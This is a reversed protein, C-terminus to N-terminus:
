AWIVDSPNYHSAAIWCLQNLCGIRVAHYVEAKSLILFREKRELFDECIQIYRFTAFLWLNNYINKEQSKMEWGSPNEKLEPVLFPGHCVFSLSLPGAHGPYAWPPHLLKPGPFAGDPTPLQAHFLWSSCLWSTPSPCPLGSVPPHPPWFSWFLGSRWSSLNWSAERDEMYNTTHTTFFHSLTDFSRELVKGPPILSEMQPIQVM